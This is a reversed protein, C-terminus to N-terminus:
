SFDRKFMDIFRGVILEVIYDEEFEIEFVTIYAQYGNMARFSILYYGFGRHDRVVFGMMELSKIIKQKRTM